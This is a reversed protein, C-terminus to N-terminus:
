YSISRYFASFVDSLKDGNCFADTLGELASVPINEKRFIVNEMIKQEEPWYSEVLFWFVSFCLLTLILIRVYGTLKRHKKRKNQYIIRYAMEDGQLLIRKLHCNLGEASLFHTSKCSDFAILVRM